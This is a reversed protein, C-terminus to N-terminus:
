ILLNQVTWIIILDFRIRLRSWQRKKKRRNRGEAFELAVLLIKAQASVLILIQQIFNHMLLLIKGVEGAGGTSEGSAM